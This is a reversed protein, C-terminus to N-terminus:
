HNISSTMLSFFLYDTEWDFQERVSLIVAETQMQLETEISYFYM